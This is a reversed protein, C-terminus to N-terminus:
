NRENVLYCENNQIRVMETACSHIPQWYVCIELSFDFRTVCGIVVQTQGAESVSIMQRAHPQAVDSFFKM